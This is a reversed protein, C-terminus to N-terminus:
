DNGNGPPNSTVCNTESTIVDKIFVDDPQNAADHTFPVQTEM